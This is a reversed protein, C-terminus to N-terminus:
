LLNSAPESPVSLPHLPALLLLFYFLNSSKSEKNESRTGTYVPGQHKAKPSVNRPRRPPCQRGEQFAFCAQIVARTVDLKQRSSEPSVQGIGAGRQRGRGVPGSSIGGSLARVGPLAKVAGRLFLEDQEGGLGRDPILEGDIESWEM